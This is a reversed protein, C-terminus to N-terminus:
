SASTIFRIPPSPLIPTDASPRIPTFAPKPPEFPNCRLVSTIRVGRITRMITRSRKGKKALCYASVGIRRFVNGWRRCVSV